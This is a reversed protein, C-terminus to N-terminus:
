KVSFKARKTLVLLILMIFFLPTSGGSSGSSKETTPTPEPTPVPEPEPMPEPTTDDVDSVNITINVASSQGHENKAVVALQYSSTTEFDLSQSAALSIVGQGDIVFPAADGVFEFDDINNDAATAIVTGVTTLAAIDESATFVQNATIVPVSLTADDNIYEKLWVLAPRENGANDILYAGEADRWLGRRWGWLTIGKVSSHDWFIPFVRKYEALQVADDLGDIDLETVYIDLDTAALKALNAQMIVADGKTSFAHAQFGVADILEREKLLNIITLYTNTNDPSNIIGYDNIMLQSNPFYFRALEFSKIIWDYGTAGNGGLADAYDAAPTTSYAMNEGNPPAHIAENVVEVFDIDSYRASVLTFWQEIEALKEADSLADIWSPQQSGWIMVHMKFPLNNDKALNYAADLDAWNMVDRVAEVSGWKGGNEPTVQDWYHTFDQIQSTSYINGLFKGDPKTLGAALASINILTSLLGLFLFFQIRATKKM